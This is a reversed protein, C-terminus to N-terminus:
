GDDNDARMGFGWHERTPERSAELVTVTLSADRQGRVRQRGGDGNGLLFLSLADRSRWHCFRAVASGTSATCAVVCSVVPWREPRVCLCVVLCVCRHLACAAM